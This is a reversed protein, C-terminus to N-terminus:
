QAPTLRMAACFYNDITRYAEGNREEGIWGIAVGLGLQSIQLCRGEGKSHLGEEHPRAGAQEAM